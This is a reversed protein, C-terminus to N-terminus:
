PTPTLACVQSSFYDTVYLNGSASVAIGYPNHFLPPSATCLGTATTSGAVTTVNGAPTIMQVEHDNSDAVYVDGASDVAVGFPNAFTGPLATVTTGSIEFVKSDGADAVYVNGSSDVAIGSPQNFPFTPVLQTVTTSTSIKEIANNGTDAVYVNGSSDVAVGAPQNFTFTPVLQTAVGGSYELIQNNGTDAVYVVTGATNVAVGEPSSLGAGSGLLTTFSTGSPPIELIRNNLTDAVYLNGLSDVAVGSPNNFTVATTAAAGAAVAAACAFTDTTINSTIPGSFNSGGASCTEWFPQTAVTVGVTTGYSVPTTFLYSAANAAVALTEGGTYDKLQLGPNTLGSITGSMTFTDVSCTVSVSNVNATATGAGSAVTCTEGTPQTAITVTYASGSQLATAFTFSTAGSAVSLHDGGNDALVLGSASLGSITGGITDLAKCSVAVSTVNATVTGTGSTVTCTAGAPQTAVTVNYAAGSQLATAFTFSTAGSAVSLNDGGNDALVLGSASLGAITGGVTYTTSGGSGTGGTSTGGGGGGCAALSLLMLAGVAYRGIKM